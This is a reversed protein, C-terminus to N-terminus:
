RREDLWTQLEKSPIDFALTAAVISRPGSRLLASACANLTASTTRVDDLLLFRGGAAPSWDPGITFAGAVNEHRDERSLDVQAATERTRVLLPMTPVGTSKALSQALLESQNYGRKRLKSAHLPVPVIADIEGFVNLSPVIMSALHDARSWEDTYKFSRLANSVWGMYPYAARALRISRDLQVCSRCTAQVPGGCRFCIGTDLRPVSGECPDCLWTGRLGCGACTKPYVTEVLGGRVRNWLPMMIVGFADRSGTANM